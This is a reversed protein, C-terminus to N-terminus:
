IAQLEVLETDNRKAYATLTEVVETWNQEGRDMCYPADLFEDDFVAYANNQGGDLDGYCDVKQGNRKITVKKM